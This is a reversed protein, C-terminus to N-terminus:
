NCKLKNLLKHVYKYMALAKATNGEIANAKAAKILLLSDMIEKKYKEGTEVTLLVTHLSYELQVTRLHSKCESVNENPCVSLRFMYIGDPLDVMDGGNCEIRLVSSNLITHSRAMIPIRVSKSAGPHTVDLVVNSPHKDMYYSKDFFIFTKLNMDNDYVDFDLKNQDIGLSM